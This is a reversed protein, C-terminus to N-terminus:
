SITDGGGSRVQPALGLRHGVAHKRLLEIKLRGVGNLLHRSCKFLQHLLISRCTMRQDRCMSHALRRTADRSLPEKLSHLANTAKVPIRKPRLRDAKM